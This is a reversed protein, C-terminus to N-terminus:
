LLVEEPHVRRAFARVEVEFNHQDDRIDRVEGRLSRVDKVVEKVDKHMEDIDDRLNTSHTNSVQSDVRDLTTNQKRNIRITVWSGVIPALIAIIWLYEPANAPLNVKRPTGESSLRVPSGM